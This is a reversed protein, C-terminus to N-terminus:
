LINKLKAMLHVNYSANVNLAVNLDVVSSKTNMINIIIVKFHHSYYALMDRTLHKQECVCVCVCVCVCAPTHCCHLLCPSRRLLPTHTIYIHATHRRLCHTHTHTLSLSLLQYLTLQFLPDSETSPHLSLPHTREKAQVTLTQRHTEPCRYRANWAANGDGRLFVVPLSSCDSWEAGRRPSRWRSETEM